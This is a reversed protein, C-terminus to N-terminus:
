AANVQADSGAFSGEDNDVINALRGPVNLPVRFVSEMQARTDRLRRSTDLHSIFYLLNSLPMAKDFNFDIAPDSVQLLDRLEKYSSNWAFPTRKHRDNERINMHLTMGNMNPMSVDSIILDVSEDKLYKLASEGDGAKVVTYSYLSLVESLLNLYIQDNDVLLIRM